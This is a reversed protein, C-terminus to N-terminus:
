GNIDITKIWTVLPKNASSVYGVRIWLKDESYQIVGVTDGMILYKKTKSNKNPSTYLFLKENKISVTKKLTRIYEIIGNEILHKSKTNKKSLELYSDINEAGLADCRMMNEINKLGLSAYPTKIKNLTPKMSQFDFKDIDNEDYSTLQDKDKAWHYGCAEGDWDSVICGTRMDIVSCYAKDFYQKNGDDSDLEGGSISNVVIYNGSPSVKTSGDETYYRDSRTLDLIKGSKHFLLEGWADPDYHKGTKSQRFEISNGNPSKIIVNSLTPMALALGIILMCCNIKKM